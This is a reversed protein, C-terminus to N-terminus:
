SAAQQRSSIYAEIESARWAVRGASIRIPKPFGSRDDTTLRWLTTRSLGGLRASTRPFSLLTDTQDTDTM